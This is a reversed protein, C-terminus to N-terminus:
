RWESIVKAKINIAVGAAILTIGFVIIPGLFPIIGIVFYLVTGLLATKWTVEYEHQRFVYKYVTSGILIPAIMTALIMLAAFGLLGLAGFAIGIVTFLLLVSVIPTVIVFIVGRGFEALPRSVARLVLEDAFRQFVYAIVLAGSFVMFMKAVFWISFFAVLGLKAAERVDPSKTYATEGVVVAGSELVAQKPSKYTFTGNIHANPGLVINEAQVALNGNVVSDIRVDGGVLRVDGEIDPVDIRVVGGAVAVDGGIRAGGLTVQGGALLVDGVVAGQVVVTGGSARVDDHVDSLISVTGGGATVDGLVKGNILVNGGFTFLDGRVSGNSTIGGGLLYIDDNLAENKLYTAAQGTRFEAAASVVPVVMCAALIIALITTTRTMMRIM